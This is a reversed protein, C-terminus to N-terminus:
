SNIVAYVEQESMPFYNLWECSVNLWKKDRDVHPAHNHTHGHILWRGVDYGTLPSPRHTLIVTKNGIKMRWSQHAEIFGAEKMKKANEDHNGIILYHKGNLQSLLDKVTEHHRSVDGLNWVEDEPKVVTNWNKVITARMEEVNAFPRNCYKIINAHGDHLDSIFYRM